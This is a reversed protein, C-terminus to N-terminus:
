FASSRIAQSSIGKVVLVDELVAILSNSCFSASSISADCSSLWSALVKLPVILRLQDTSDPVIFHTISFSELSFSDFSATGIFEYASFWVFFVLSESSSL